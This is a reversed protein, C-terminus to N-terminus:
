KRGGSGARIEKLAEAILEHFVDGPHGKRTAQKELAPIAPSAAPGMDRLAMVAASVADDDDCDLARILAPVAGPGCRGLAQVAYVKHPAIRDPLGTYISLRPLAEEAGGLRKLLAAVDKESLFPEFSDVGRQPGYHKEHVEAIAARTEMVPVVLKWCVLGAALLLGLATAWMIYIRKYRKPGAPQGEIM